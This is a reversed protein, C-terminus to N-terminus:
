VMAHVARLATLQNRARSMSDPQTRLRKVHNYITPCPVGSPDAIRQMTKLALTFSWTTQSLQAAWLVRSTIAHVAVRDREGASPVGSDQSGHHRHRGPGRRPHRHVARGARDRIPVNFASAREALDMLVNRRGAHAPEEHNEVALVRM